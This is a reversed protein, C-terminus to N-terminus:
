ETASRARIIDGVLIAAPYLVEEETEAHAALTEALQEQAAAKEERAAIRLKEAAARIRQHEELMRPLEQSACRDDRTRGASRGTDPRGGVACSPWAPPLAIENEREFHPHLVAALERAAAGVRGPVRTAESLREHIGHHEAQLSQPITIM